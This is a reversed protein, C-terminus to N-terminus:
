QVRAYDEPSNLNALVAETAGLAALDETTLEAMRLVDGLDSAKLRGREIESRIRHRADRRYCAFLPEVGRASRIWAGDSSVSRRVLERLVQEDLFPLDCAVVIVADTDAVELATYLGGIAGLDPLRDPHVALGLDAYRAPDPGVIFVSRAVRQLVEVQRVIIPQGLVVLRSKDQGGFRRARGGALIAAATTFGSM